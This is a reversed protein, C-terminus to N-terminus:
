KLFSLILGGFDEIFLDQNKNVNHLIVHDVGLSFIEDILQIIEAPNASIPINEEVKKILVNESLADFQEVTHINALHHAALCNCRWQEYAQQRAVTLDRDYSFTLKVHIPKGAGGGARFADIVMQLEPHPRYVTLLGDAWPASWAATEKSIAACNLSPVRNPLTYLKAEHVNVLGWHNVKEGMLLRKIVSACELLRQNRIGKEPWPDGTIHENLAEGSGLSIGLRGPYMEELTAIAQAVVAPHYRQGPTTIFYVPFETAEMVAGLWSYVYGSHGQRVSWPHFHDSSHCSTFGALEAKKVLRLLERPSFQEHSAHYSLRKM